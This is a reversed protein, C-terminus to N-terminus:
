PKELDQFYERVRKEHRKPIDRRNLAEEARKKYNPLVNRYPVSTRNGTKTPAKIETYSETGRDEDRTGTIATPTTTGKGEAEKDLKEVKGTDRFNDDQSRGGRGPLQFLSGLAQAIEQGQGGAQANELAERLAALYEQMAPDDKLQEMLKELEDRMKELDEPSIQPQGSEKGEQLQKQLREALKRLEQMKPDDRLKDLTAQAEKSLELKRLEQQLQEVQKQLEGLSEPSGGDSQAEEMKKGLKTLLRNLSDRRANLEEPTAKAMSPDRPLGARELTQEEIKERATQADLLNKETQSFREAALKEAEAMLENARQLAEEKSVRGKELERSFRELNRLTAKEAETMAAKAKQVPRIVREVAQGAKQLAEREAKQDASLLMPTNGLMFFAAAAAM